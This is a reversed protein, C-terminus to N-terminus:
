KYWRGADVIITTGDVVAQCGHLEVLAWARKKAQEPTQGTWVRPALPGRRLEVTWGAAPKGQPLHGWRPGDVEAALQQPTLGHLYDACPQCTCLMEDNWQRGTADARDV